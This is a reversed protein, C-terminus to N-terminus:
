RLVMGREANRAGFEDGLEGRRILAALPAAAWVFSLPEIPIRFRASVITLAHFAAVAAFVALTPWIRGWQPRLAVVGVACLGLWILTSARYALNAAKPNTEDFLLFYRLRQLCLKLYNAPNDGIFEWSRASLLRSRAPESLGQFERYGGPALVVEDIYTTQLRAENVARHMGALTGDHALRTTEASPVPIKDTGWSIPNNAQWFAYGFTSKIFVFERHVHYNRVLWPAIVAAAVGAMLSARGLPAAFRKFHCVADSASYKKAGAALDALLFALAAIPLSIALIPEVLLLAGSVVGALSAKLWSQRGRPSVVVALLLTLLFAAWIAVQMHTVMYVHTPYVAAGWGAVWGLSPWEPVLSWSLWVVLLVLGTGVLCQLCRVALIAAPSGIGFLKYAGALLYPYYPAQTSTPGTVGLYWVSFGRGALINEAIGGHEYTYTAAQGQEGWVAWVLGLRLGLATLALLSLGVIRRM